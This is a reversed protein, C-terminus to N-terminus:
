SSRQVATSASGSGRSASLLGHLTPGRAGVPYRGRASGEHFAIERHARQSIEKVDHRRALLGGADLEEPLALGDAVEDDVPGQDELGEGGAERPDELGRSLLVLRGVLEGPHQQHWGGPVVGLVELSGRLGLLVEGLGLAVGHPEERAPGAPGPHVRRRRVHAREREVLPDRHPHLRVESAVPLHGESDELRALHDRRGVRAYEGDDPPDRELNWRQQDELGGGAGAVGLTRGTGAGGDTMGAAATTGRAFASTGTAGAAKTAAVEGTLAEKAAAGAM